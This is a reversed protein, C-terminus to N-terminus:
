YWVYEDVWIESKARSEQIGAARLDEVWFLRDCVVIALGALVGSYQLAIHTPLDWVLYVCVFM